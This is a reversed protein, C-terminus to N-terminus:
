FPVEDDKRLKKLRGDFLKKDMDDMAEFMAKTEADRPKESERPIEEERKRVIIKSCEDKIDVAAPAFKTQNNSMLKDVSKTIHEIPFFELELYYHERVGPDNLRNDEPYVLKLSKWVNKFEDKTM